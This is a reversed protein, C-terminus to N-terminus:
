VVGEFLNAEAFHVVPGAESVAELVAVDHEIELVAVEYETGFVTLSWRLGEQAVKGSSQLSAMDRLAEMRGESCVRGLDRRLKPRVQLWLFLM